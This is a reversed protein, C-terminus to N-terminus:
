SRVHGGQQFLSVGAIGAVEEEKDRIGHPVLGWVGTVERM